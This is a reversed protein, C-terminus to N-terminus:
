KQRSPFGHDSDAVVANIRREIEDITEELALLEYFARMKMIIPNPPDDSQVRGLAVAVHQEVESAMASGVCLRMRARFCDREDLAESHQFGFIRRADSLDLKIM